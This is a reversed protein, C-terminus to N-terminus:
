ASLADKEKILALQAPKWDGREMHAEVNNPVYVGYLHGSNRGVMVRGNGKSGGWYFLKLPVPAYVGSVYSLRQIAACIDAVGEGLLPVAQTALAAVDQLSEMVFDETIKGVLPDDHTVKKRDIDIWTNLLLSQSTLNDASALDGADILARLYAFWTPASPTFKEGRNVSGSIHYSRSAIKIASM